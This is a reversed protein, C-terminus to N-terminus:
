RIIPLTRYSGGLFPKSDVEVVYELLSAYVQRYDVHHVLNGDPDLRKLSPPEGYLGGRVPRGIVMVVNAAGHDTGGSANAQVRRGFETYLMLVTGAGHPSRGLGNFFATVGADLQGLLQAQTQLEDSHTDFGGMSAQYVRTPLGAMILEGIVSLQTGMDGGDRGAVTLPQEKSLAASAVNGVEILNLGTQAVLNELPTGALELQQVSQYLSRFVPDWSVNQGQASTTDALASAQERAGVLAPPVSAGVSLARLPDKGSADLWRGLWGTSVDADTSGAQWIAMSAFHSLNPEPYGVGHVFAVHGADWLAKIGVLAPHLGFGDKLKLVANPLIRMAARQSAYAPDDYPVLTNLGDNGGYLTGLVLTRAAPPAAAPALSPEAREEALMHSLRGADTLPRLAGAGLGFAGLRAANGLLERRSFTRAM